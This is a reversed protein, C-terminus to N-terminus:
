LDCIVSNLIDENGYVVRVGRGRGCNHLIRSNAPKCSDGHRTVGSTAPLASINPMNATRRANSAPNPRVMLKRAKWATFALQHADPVIAQTTRADAESREANISNAFTATKESSM